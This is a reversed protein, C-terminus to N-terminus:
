TVAYVYFSHKEKKMLTPMQCIRLKLRVKYFNTAILILAVFQGDPM